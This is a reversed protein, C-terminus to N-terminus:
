FRHREIPRYDSLACHRYYAQDNVGSVYVVREESEQHLCLKQDVELARKENSPFLESFGTFQAITKGYEFSKMDQWESRAVRNMQPTCASLAIAVALVGLVPANRRM